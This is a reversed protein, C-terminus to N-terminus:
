NSAVEVNLAPDLTPKQLWKAVDAGLTDAIQELTTCARFTFPRNTTRKLTFNGVLQGDQKLEGYIRGWKPGSVAGGGAAHAKTIVIHLTRGSLTALDADTAEVTGRANRVISASLERGWDCEARILAGGVADSRYPIDESIRITGDAASATGTVAFAALAAAFFRKDM